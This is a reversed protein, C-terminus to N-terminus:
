RGTAEQAHGLASKPIIQKSSNKTSPSSLQNKRYPILKVILNQEAKSINIRSCKMEARQLASASQMSHQLESAMSPAKHSNEVAM